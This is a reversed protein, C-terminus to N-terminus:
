VVMFRLIPLDPLNRTKPFPRQFSAKSSDNTMILHPVQQCFKMMTSPSWLVERDLNKMSETDMKKKLVRCALGPRIFDIQQDTSSNTSITSNWLQQTVFPMHWSQLALPESKPKDSFLTYEWHFLWKIPIIILLVMPYLPTKGIKLCVWIDALSQAWHQDAEQTGTICLALHQDLTVRLTLNSHTASQTFPSHKLTCKYSSQSRSQTPYTRGFFGLGIHEMTIVMPLLNM